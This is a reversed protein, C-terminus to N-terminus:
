DDKPVKRARQALDNALDSGGAPDRSIILITDDGAITGLVDPLNTQDLASALFHAAGPPTRLVVLNASAEASILLDRLVRALKQQAQAGTGAHAGANPGDAPVAYVLAGDAGRVRVADLEDLDRSVTSPTASVGRRELIEVLEGQSHVTQTSLLEVILQQRAPKTAPIVQRPAM